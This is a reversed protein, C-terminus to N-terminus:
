WIMMKGDWSNVPLLASAKPYKSKNTESEEFKDRNALSLAKCCNSLVTLGRNIFPGATLTLFIALFISYILKKM